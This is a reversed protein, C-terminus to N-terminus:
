KEEKREIEKLLSNVWSVAGSGGWLRWAISAKSTKDKRNEKEMESEGHRAFWARMLILQEKDVRGSVLKRATRMGTGAVRKDGDDKYAARQALPRSLNQEIASQAIDRISRPVPYTPMNIVM